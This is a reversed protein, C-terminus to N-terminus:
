KDMISIEYLAFDSFNNAEVPLHMRIGALLYSDARGPLSEVVMHLGRYGMGRGSARLIADCRKSNHHRNKLCM